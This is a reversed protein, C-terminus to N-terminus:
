HSTDVSYLFELIHPLVLEAMPEFRHGYDPIGIVSANKMEKSFEEQRQYHGWEDEEGAFFLVPSDLQLM